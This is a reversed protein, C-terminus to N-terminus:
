DRFFTVDLEGYPLDVDPLLESLLGHIRRGLYVGRPQIAILATDRFNHHNEILQHCLRLLTVHLQGPQFLDLRPKHM